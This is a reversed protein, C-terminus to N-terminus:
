ISTNKMKDVMGDLSGVLKKEMLHTIYFDSLTLIVDIALASSLLIAM